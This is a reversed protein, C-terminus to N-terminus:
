LVNIFVLVAMVPFNSPDIRNPIIPMHRSEEKWDGCCIDVILDPKLFGGKDARGPTYQYKM